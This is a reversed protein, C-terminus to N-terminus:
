GRREVRCAFISSILWISVIRHSSRAVIGSKREWTM